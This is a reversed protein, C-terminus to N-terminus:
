LLDGVGETCLSVEEVGEEGRVQSVADDGGAPHTGPRVWLVGPFLNDVFMLSHRKCAVALSPSKCFHLMRAIVYVCNAM